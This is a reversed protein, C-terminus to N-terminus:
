QVTYLISYFLYSYICYLYSKYGCSWKLPKYQYFSMDFLNEDKIKANILWKSVAVFIEKIYEKDPFLPAEAGIEVNM